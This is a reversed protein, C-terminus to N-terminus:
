KGGRRKKKKKDYLASDYEDLKFSYLEMKKMQEKVEIREIIDSKEWKEIRGNYGVTVVLEESVTLNMLSLDFSELVEQIKVLFNFINKKVIM